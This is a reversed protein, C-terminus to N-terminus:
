YRIAPKLWIRCPNIFRGYRGERVAGLNRPALLIGDYLNGRRAEPNVFKLAEEVIWRVPKESLKPLVQDERAWTVAKRSADVHTIRAGVAAASLTAVL